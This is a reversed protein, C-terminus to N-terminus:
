HHRGCTSGGNETVSQAHTMHDAREMGAQGASRLAEIEQQWEVCCEATPHLRESTEVAHRIAVELNRVRAMAADRQAVVTELEHVSQENAM